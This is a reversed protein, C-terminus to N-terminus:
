LIMDSRPAHIINFVIQTKSECVIQAIWLLSAFGTKTIRALSWNSVVKHIFTYGLSQLRHPIYFTSILTDSYLAERESVSKICYVHLVFQKQCGAANVRAQGTCGNELVIICVPM